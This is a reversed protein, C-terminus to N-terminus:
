APAELELSSSDPQASRAQQAIEPHTTFLVIQRRNSEEALLDLAVDLRPQDFHAFPEDLFLPVRDTTADLLDALALREVFFIQDQTGQSLLEASVMRGTEPAVVTIRLDDDIESQTYRGATIRALHEDLSRKLHPRFARRAERAAERLEDRALAVAQAGQELRVVRGAITEVEERAGPLDAIQAERDAIQTGLKAMEVKLENLENARTQRLTPLDAEAQLELGLEGHEAVNADLQKRAEDRKEELGEFTLDGLATQYGEQAEQAAAARRRAEAALERRRKFEERAGNMDGTEIQLQGYLQVIGAELTAQQRKIAALESLPEGTAALQGNLQGLEAQVAVSRRQKECSSLYATSRDGIDGLERAGAQNMVETLRRELEIHRAETAAGADVSTQPEPSPRSKTALYAFFATILLGALALPTIAAGVGISAVAFIVAMAWPLAPSRRSTPEGDEGRVERSATASESAEALRGAMERVKAEASVDVERFAELDSLETQLSVRQQELKAMGERAIEARPALDDLQDRLRDFEAIRSGIEREDEESLGAHADAKLKARDRHEVARRLREDLTAASSRLLAQEVTALRQEATRCRDELARRHQELRAIEEETQGAEEITKTLGDKRDLLGALPGAKNPQLSDVRVGIATRLCDDLRDIGGEVGSDSAGLEVARQLSIVLTESNTVRAVDAQSLCCAQRFDELGLGLLFEGLSVDDGKGRVESSRDSGSRSDILRVAHTTFDWEVRFQTEGSHVVANISFPDGNWPQCRTLVSEGRSKRRESKSFGFLTRLLAEHMSSKGAENRGCVITLEQSLDFKGHLRKFGRIDLSEIWM